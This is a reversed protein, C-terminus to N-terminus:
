GFLIGRRFGQGAYDLVVKGCVQGIMGLFSFVGPRVPPPTRNAPHFGSVTPRTDVPREAEAM